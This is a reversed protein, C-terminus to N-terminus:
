SSKELHEHLIRRLELITEPKAHISHGGKFIQESRAGELHSSTYPVIGDSMKQQDEFKTANGIISHYPLNARPMVQHTLQMFRSNPSLDDPGSHILGQTSNQTDLRVDVQDFFSVPLKVLKKALNVYWQDTLDSGRHPAAVFVARSFPLDAKLQFRAAIVPNQQLRSYQEYNMLPIAQKSIDADSVLLRSIIGGMSHGILVADSASATNPQVQAFAQQLLAHIQFRSELIPMNTSYAMMWVQYNERLVPDGLINNTLNVWTEPSSALGHVLVIVKKHAQYPELRYLHPMRLAEARDLLSLYGIKGLKNHALWYAFPATYNATLTYEQENLRALKHQYPNYISLKLPIQGSIIETASAQADIPQLTATVTLYQPSHLRPNERNKYYSAPDVIFDNAVKNEVAKALVFEAGLGDQRNVKNFGSFNLTYSSQLSDISLDKVEPYNQTDIQYLNQGIYFKAPLKKFQKSQYQVSILRSLAYNYLTRVQMQRLDFAHQNPNTGAKFLYVYSYRLSLDLASLTQQTCAKTKCHQDLSLAQALYLESLTSYREHIPIVKQNKIDFTCQQFHSFCSTDTYSTMALLSQTDASLETSSIITQSRKQIAQDIKSQKISVLQCGSFSILSAILIGLYILKKNIKFLDTMM